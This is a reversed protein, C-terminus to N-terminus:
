SPLLARQVRQGLVAGVWRGSGGVEPPVHRARTPPAHVHLARRASGVHVTSRDARQLLYILKLIIPLALILPGRSNRGALSVAVQTWVTSNLSFSLTSTGVNSDVRILM